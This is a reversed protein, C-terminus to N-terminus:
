YQHIVVKFIKKPSKWPYGMLVAGMERLHYVLCQLLDSDVVGGEM